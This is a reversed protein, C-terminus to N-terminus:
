VLKPRCLLNWRLNIFNFLKVLWGSSTRIVYGIFVNMLSFMFHGIFFFIFYFKGETEEATWNVLQYPSPLAPCQGAMWGISVCVCVCYLSLIFVSASQIDDLGCTTGSLHEYVCVCVCVCVSAVRWGWWSCRKIWRIGGVIFLANGEKSLSPNLADSCPDKLLDKNM